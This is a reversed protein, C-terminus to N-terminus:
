YVTVPIYPLQFAKILLNLVLFNATVIRAINMIEANVGTIDSNTFPVAFV